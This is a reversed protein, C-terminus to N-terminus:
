DLCENFLDSCSRVSCFHITAFKRQISTRNYERGIVGTYIYYSSRSDDDLDWEADLLVVWAAITCTTDVVKGVVSTLTDQPVRTVVACDVNVVTLAVHTLYLPKLQRVIRKDLQLGQSGLWLGVHSDHERCLLLISDEEIITLILVESNLQELPTDTDAVIMHSLEQGDLLVKSQSHVSAQCTGDDILPLMVVKSEGAWEKDTPYGWLGSLFSEGLPMEPVEGAEVTRVCLVRSLLNPIDFGGRNRTGGLHPPHPSPLPLDPPVPLPTKLQLPLPQPPPPDKHVGGTDALCYTHPRWAVQATHMCTDAPIPHVSSRDLDTTPGAQGCAPGEKVCCTASGGTRGSMTAPGTGFVVVM